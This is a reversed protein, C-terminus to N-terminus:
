KHAPFLLLIIHFFFFSVTMIYQVQRLFFKARHNLVKIRDELVLRKEERFLDVFTTLHETGLEMPSILVRSELQTNVLWTAKLRIRRLSIREKACGGRARM